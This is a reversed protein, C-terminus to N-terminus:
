REATVTEGKGYLHWFTVGQWDMALILMRKREGMQKAPIEPAKEGKGLWFKQKDKPPPSYLSLWTEDIALTQKLRNPHQNLLLLNHHSALSRCEMQDETLEHPIWKGLKKTLKLDDTMM